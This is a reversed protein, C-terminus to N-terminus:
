RDGLRLDVFFTSGADEASEVRVRGRHLDM